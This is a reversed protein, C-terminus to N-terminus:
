SWSNMFLIEKVDLRKKERVQDAPYGMALLEVVRIHRPIGCIEKVADEDFAGLWCTGLGRETALLTIHDMLIAIDIPYCHQRCSMVHYNTDACCAFMVPATKWWGQTGAKDSIAAIKEKDTVAVLRWEQRNSASPALRAVDVIERLLAEPVTKDQYKRCSYRQRVADSVNM